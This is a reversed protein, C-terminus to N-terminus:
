IGSDTLSQVPVYSQLIKGSCYFMQFRESSVAKVFKDMFYGTFGGRWVKMAGAWTNHIM